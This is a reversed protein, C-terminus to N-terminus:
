FSSDGLEFAFYKTIEDNVLLVNLLICLNHFLKTIIKLGKKYSINAKKIKDYTIDEVSKVIDMINELCGKILSKKEVCNNIIKNVHERIKVLNSLVPPLNSKEKVNNFILFILYNKLAKHFNPQSIEEEKLKTFFIKIYMELIFLIYEMFTSRKYIIRNGCEAEGFSSYNLKLLLFQSSLIFLEKILSLNNANDSINIFNQCNIKIENKSHYSSYNGYIIIELLNNLFDLLHSEKDGNLNNKMIHVIVKLIQVSIDETLKYENKQYLALFLKTLKTYLLIQLENDLKLYCDIVLTIFNKNYFMMELTGKELLNTLYKWFNNINSYGIKRNDKFLSSIKIFGEIIQNNQKKILLQSEKDESQKLTYSTNLLSLSSEFKNDDKEILKNKSLIDIYKLIKDQMM